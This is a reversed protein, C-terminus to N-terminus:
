DDNFKLYFYVSFIFVTLGLVRSDPWISLSRFTPSLFILGTLFGLYYENTLKFKKKLCLFFGLPLFLIIHLHIIRIIDDSLRLKEFLSLFIILIPSHRTAYKDYNFFTDKFNIAFDLSVKKQGQYDIFAGGTSDEGFIFGVILSLYLIIFLLLYNYVDNNIFRLFRM